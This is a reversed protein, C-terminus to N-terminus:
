SIAYMYNSTKTKKMDLEANDQKKLKCM